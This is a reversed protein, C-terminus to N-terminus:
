EYIKKGALIMYCQASEGLTLSVPRPSTESEHLLVLNDPYSPKTFGQTGENRHIATFLAPNQLLLVTTKMDM